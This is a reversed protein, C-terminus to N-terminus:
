WDNLYNEELSNYLKLDHGLEKFASAVEQVKSPHCVITTKCEKPDFLPTLYKSAIRGMDETTVTSIRQVMQQTYNHSVNKFYSLLSQQVLACVSQEKEIIEYILSSKASEFLLKEWKNESVHMNVISKAEKYAAIINTSRYFTLHLLGESPKAYINCDYSLGQGRILKWMPGEIQTLYQLCVLLPALDPDQHNNICPCCQSLFSSEICGLGTVCGKCPIEDPPNIFASDPIVELKTKDSMTLESFHTNWSDYVNPIQITLKDVNTAVYLTMNKPTTLVKRVIEIESLVERQGEENNLRELISNLFKQQRLMSSTFQNSDKNYLLGRMLDGVVQFGNRKFQAVDNVMKTAIIKLRNPTLETEYLLEKIWQVGKEYKEIELQLWLIACYSYPGCSFRSPSSHGLGTTTEVTDAELEAVVEEYPVLQGNRKVPSEMIVELLLPIYPKYKREVSSTNMIVCINVFNTTVHDLYTYFPLETVAFRSHQETTETTYSKIHHFSILDTSPIPVSSLIEDPVPINNKAIAGELEKEKLQLGEEGLDEIQKAVREKEKETLELQKNLSPIGKVVILPSDLFYKKLLNLWYSEPEMELKKLDKIDNLRQDLDEKTNGYLVHIFLMHAIVNQPNSELCSLTQLIRRHIVTKLRKMDIGKEHVDNLTKQLQAKVHSIKPKPVNEFQLCLVSVSYECPYYGVNSAYPESTELFEQQLPSVSTDTLYHLLLICGVFDYIENVISPGRWAVKVVGNDEDDCPYQVDLDISKLLPPVPSQWPKEFVGRNGKLMIKQELPQLAKFVDVHKIQGIIVLTLNEPRYFDKHYQRVKENNTSERLNKLAGGTISKYGCHGPFMARSLEQYVLYEGINERGQMECYVVGANEGKGNVHHIETLYASDTLTPYLIHELYVPMLSLFGESSATSMTYCTFDMMTTANTGSALCRNAWLDLIGKYPYDESGLFILHELTHPLGDDDHAETALGFYGYVLPGDVEAICVTIGTNTSKYVHVPITDNTKVSYVLEFGGMNGRPSSDVPAM